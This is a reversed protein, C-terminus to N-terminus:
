GGMSLSPPPITRKTASTHRILFITGKGPISHVDLEYGVSEVDSKVAAMGVGRGSIDDVKDATSMGSAFILEWERGPVCKLGMQIAKERLRDTNLGAGDDEILINPGASGPICTLKITGVPDKGMNERVEPTEIGHALCNRVMHTLCGPLVRALQPPVLVEKGDVVFNARKDLSAAWAPVGDQLRGAAEGFPRSALRDALKAIRRARPSDVENEILARIEGELSAVDTRNVTVQELVLAGIPSAEIFRDRVAAIHHRANAIGEVLEQFVPETSTSGHMAAPERLDTLREELEHCVEELDALEFAKAEGKVTHAHQFLVEVESANVMRPAPGIDGEFASLRDTASEMFSVFLQTGGALLKKMAAMEKSFEAEREAAERALKVKETDDTALVMVRDIRGRQVIPRFEVTLFVEDDTFENLVREGPVMEAMENWAEPASAFVVDLWAKFAMFEPDYDPANPFLLDLVHEGELQPKRFVTKAQGSHQGVVRFERNFAFIAQRMNDFLQALEQNKQEVMRLAQDKLAEFISAMGLAMAMGGISDSMKLERWKEPKFGEAPLPTLGHWARWWAAVNEYHMPETARFSEPLHTGHKDVLYLAIVCLSNFGLWAWAWRMGALLLAMIPIVPILRLAAGDIGGAISAATILAATTIAAEINGVVVLSRFHKFQWILVVALTALAGEIAAAGYNKFEVNLFTFFYAFAAGLVMFLVSTKARRYLDTGGNLFDPHLRRLVFRDLASQENDAPAAAATKQDTM